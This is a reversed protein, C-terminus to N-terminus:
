YAYTGDLPDPVTRCFKVVRNWVDPEISSKWVGTLMRAATPSSQALNEVASIYDPGAKALLDELPGAAITALVVPEPEGPLLVIAQVLQWLRDWPGDMCLDLVEFSSWQLAENKSQLYAVYTSALDSISPETRQM